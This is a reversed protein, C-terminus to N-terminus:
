SAYLFGSQQCTQRRRRFPPIHANNNNKMTTPSTSRRLTGHLRAHLRLVAAPSRLEGTPLCLPATACHNREYTWM